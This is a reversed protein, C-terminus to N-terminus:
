GRCQAARCGRWAGGRLDPLQGASGPHDPPVPLVGSREAARGARWAAAVGDGTAIAPNTTHRFLRGAGGSALIVADATLRKPVAAGGPNGGSDRSRRGQRERVILDTLFSHELITVATDQVARVLAEEIGGGDRRRRRPAGAPTLAGGRPGQGLGCRCPRVGRRVPDSGHHAPSGGRVASRGGRRVNVGAGARLTDAMHDAVSDDPFVAAAIGGQAYLTNSEALRSKTILTVEHTASAALAATLGAIGSGVVIVSPM